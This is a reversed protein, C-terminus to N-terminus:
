SPAAQVAREAPDLAALLAGPARQVATARWAARAQWAALERPVVSELWAALERPGM